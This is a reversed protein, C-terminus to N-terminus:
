DSMILGLWQGLKSIEAFAPAIGLQDLLGLLGALVAQAQGGHSRQTDIVSGRANMQEWLLSVLREAARDDWLELVWGAKREGKLVRRAEAV